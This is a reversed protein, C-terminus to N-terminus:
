GLLIEVEAASNPWYTIYVTYEKRSFRNFDAFLAIGFILM